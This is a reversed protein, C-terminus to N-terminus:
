YVATEFGFSRGIFALDNDITKPVGVVSIQLGRREIEDAIDRAARLTGDGGICFLMNINLNLLTQVIQETDQGGRSSGLITGGDTHIDDVVDPNLEMPAHGYKPIFGELGYRIGVIRKVGYEYWLTQVIGKIVDNLGPCLGGCTVIAAKSWAPEHFIKKRPGAKEFSPVVGNQRVIKSLYSVDHSILVRENEEVYKKRCVPTDIKAEGLNSINFNYKNPNEFVDKITM